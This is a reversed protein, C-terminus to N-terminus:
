YLNKVINERWQNFFASVESLEVPEALLLMEASSQNFTKVRELAVGLWYLDFGPDKKKAMEMLKEHTFGAKKVLFYVDIFDRLTARGFLALLKNSAIDPLSDVKLGPYEAFEKLPEFRFPADVALHIVTMEKDKNVLLEVFSRINMRREILMGKAMLRDELYRSFPIVAETVTTFFDLDNSIRHKLYFYSLATGGSLYFQESDSLQGFSDLICRQVNNILEM